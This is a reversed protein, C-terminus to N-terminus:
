ECPLEATVVTPGGPPSSVQFDGDLATVRRALGILGSGHPDAGGIGDDSVRVTMLGGTRGATRGATRGIDISVATARAHKLTNAVAESVVFYAAAEVSAPPRGDFGYHVTVPIAAREAVRALADPLGLNDLATPYVRWAVERLDDLVLRSEEHAQTLLDNAKVPDGAASSRRARGLLLGLAVLRQQVGDHLDREIRRREADVAEVIEARSASLEEIRRRLADESSPGLFRRAIRRELRIVGLLGQVGLFALVLGAVLFYSLILPTPEIGDPTRGHTWEWVFEAITGGGLGFMVLIVGGLLGVPWRMGLYALARETGFGQYGGAEPDGLYRVLRRQELGTLRLTGTTLLRQATARRGPFALTPALLLGAVALCGAAVTATVAGIALGVVALGIATLKARV